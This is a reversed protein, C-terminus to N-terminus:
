KLPNSAIFKSQGPMQTASPHVSAAANADAVVDERRRNCIAVAANHSTGTPPAARRYLTAAHLEPPPFAASPSPSTRHHQSRGAIEDGSERERWKQIHNLRETAAYHM